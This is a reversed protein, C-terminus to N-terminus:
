DIAIEARDVALGDLVPMGRLSRVLARLTEYVMLLGGVPIAAYVYGMPLLLSSSQQDLNSYAVIAGYWVLVGEFALMLLCTGIKLPLQVADPLRAVILDVHLHVGYRLGLAAGLFVMWVSTYRTVEEAWYIGGMGPVLFRILTSALTVAVMVVLCAIVTRELWRFYLSSYV